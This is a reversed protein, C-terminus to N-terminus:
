WGATKHVFLSRAIVSTAAVWTSIFFNSPLM